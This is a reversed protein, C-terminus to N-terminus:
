RQVYKVIYGYLDNYVFDPVEKAHSQTTHLAVHCEKVVHDRERIAFVHNDIINSYDSFAFTKEITTTTVAGGITRLYASQAVLVRENLADFGREYLFTQGGSITKAANDLALIVAQAYGMSIELKSVPLFRELEKDALAKLARKISSVHAFEQTCGVIRNEFQYGNATADLPFTAFSISDFACEMIINYKSAFAHLYIKTSVERVFADTHEYAHLVGLKIMEAYQPHKERYGPLYLRVYNDYRKSPLLNKELLYTKGSAQLGAVVLMKPPDEVTINRFLTTKIEDFAATVQEPTYTYKPTSM